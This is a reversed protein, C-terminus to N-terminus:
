LDIEWVVQRSPLFECVAFSENLSEAERVSVHMM